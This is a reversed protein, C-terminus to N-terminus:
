LKDNGYSGGQTSEFIMRPNLSRAIGHFASSKAMDAKLNPLLGEGEITRSLIGAEEIDGILVVGILHNSRFVLKRYNGSNRHVVVEDKDTETEVQGLSVVPLGAPSLANVRIKRRQCFRKGAMNCGAAWGSHIANTWTANVESHGSVPNVYQAVDGAAFIHEVNTQGIEDVVVGRDTKIGSGALLAGNPYVGTAFVVM